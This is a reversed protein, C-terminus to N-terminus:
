LPARDPRPGLRHQTKNIVGVIPEGALPVAHLISLAISQSDEGFALIGPRVRDHSCATRTSLVWPNSTESLEVTGPKHTIAVFDDLVRENVHLEKTFDYLTHTWIQRDDPRLFWECLACGANHGFIANRGKARRLLQRGDLRALRPGSAQQVPVVDGPIGLVADKMRDISHEVVHPRKTVEHYLWIPQGTSFSDAYETLVKVRERVRGRISLLKNTLMICNDYLLLELSLFKRQLRDGVAFVENM